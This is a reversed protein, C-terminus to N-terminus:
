YAFPQHPRLMPHAHSREGLTFGDLNAMLRSGSSAFEFDGRAAKRAGELAYRLADIM